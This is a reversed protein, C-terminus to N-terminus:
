VGAGPFIHRLWDTISHYVRYAGAVEEETVEPKARTWTLAKERLDLLWEFSLDLDEPVGYEGKIFDWNVMASHWSRLTFVSERAFQLNIEFQEWLDRIAQVRRAMVM